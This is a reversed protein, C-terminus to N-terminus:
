RAPPAQGQRDWPARGGEPPGQTARPDPPAPSPPGPPPAQEWPVKGGSTPPYPDPDTHEWPPRGAAEGELSGPELDPPGLRRRRHRSPTPAQQVTPEQKRRWRSQKEPSAVSPLDLGSPTLANPDGLMMAALEPSRIRDMNRNKPTIRVGREDFQSAPINVAGPIVHLRGEATRTIPCIGIAVTIRKGDVEMSRLRAATTTSLYKAMSEGRWPSYTVLFAGAAGGFAAGVFIARIPNGFSFPLAAVIGVLVGAIVAFLTKIPVPRPLAVNGGIRGITAGEQKLVSTMVMM